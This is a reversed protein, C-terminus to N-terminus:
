SRVCASENREMELARPFVINNELHVHQRLDREFEELGNYLGRYTPCAREPPQFDPRCQTECHINM